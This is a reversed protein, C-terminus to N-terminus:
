NMAEPSAPATEAPMEAVPEPAPESTVMGEPPQTGTIQAYVEPSSAMVDLTLFIQDAVQNWQTNPYEVAMRTAMDRAEDMMGRQIMAETWRIMARPRHQYDPYDNIVMMIEPSAAEINDLMLHADSIMLHFTAQEQSTTAANLSERYIAFGEEARAEAEDMRGMEQMRKAIEFVMFRAPDSDPYQNIFLEFADIAGQPDELMDAIQTRIQTAQLAIDRRQTMQMEETSVVEAMLDPYLRVLEDSAGITAMRNFRHLYVSAARGSFPALQELADDLTQHFTDVDGVRLYTDAMQTVAVLGEDSDVSSLEIVAQYENRSSEVDGLNVIDNQARTLRAIIELEPDLEESELVQALLIEAEVGDRREMAQAAEDYLEEPTPPGCAVLLAVAAATAICITLRCARPSAGM